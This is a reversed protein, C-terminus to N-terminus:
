TFSLILMPSHSKKPLTVKAWILEANTNMEPIETMNLSKEVCIFVGGTGKVQDKRLVTYNPPFIEANFYSNNFHNPLALGFLFFTVALQCYNGLEGVVCKDSIFYM